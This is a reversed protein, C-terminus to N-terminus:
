QYLTEGLQNMASLTRPDDDGRLRHWREFVQRLAAEAGAFQGQHARVVFLDLTSQLTDPHDEGLLRRRTELSEELFPRAEGYLGLGDYVRGMTTMMRAQLLPQGALRSRIGAAGRDLIERASVVRGKAEQPDSVRFLGVLFGATQEAAAAEQRSTEEAR